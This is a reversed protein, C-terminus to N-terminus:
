PTTTGEKAITVKPKEGGGVDTKLIRSSSPQGRWARLDRELLAICALAACLPCAQATFVIHEHSNACTQVPPTCSKCPEGNLTGPVGPIPVVKIGTGKCDPCGTPESM